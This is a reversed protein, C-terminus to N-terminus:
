GSAGDALFHRSAPNSLQGDNSEAFRENLQDLSLRLGSWDRSSVSKSPDSLIAAELLLHNPDLYRAWLRVYRGLLRKLLEYEVWKTELLVEVKDFYHLVTSIAIWVDEGQAMCQEVTLPPNEASTLVRAAVNRAKLMERSHFEEILNLTHRIRAEKVARWRALWSALLAGVVVGILGVLISMM